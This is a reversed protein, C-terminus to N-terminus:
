AGPRALLGADLAREFVAMTEAIGQELPTEFVAPQAARLAADDFGEPFPLLTDAIAIAAEPRLRRVIAVFAEVSTPPTGLNFTEAGALPSEAALIFQRAVDSAYQFQMTGRFGVTFPTGAVAALIAKTPDSTLGQDRGPGYVTYPRLGVSSIRQDQWYVRAIGEDALKYVGYLTRPDPPADHALLGPPYGAMPGYVAISSAHALHAVGAARAAEFVNVTGVVNVRAGGVPDARCFPVQLAALHIIHTVQHERVAAAVQTPDTLDGQIFTIAQQADADLLLSLRGRNTSLDFSVARKGQRVLHTLTWAGICGMAGTVLYTPRTTM